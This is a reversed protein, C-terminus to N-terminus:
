IGGGCALGAFTATMQRIQTRFVATPGTISARRHPADALWEDGCGSQREDPPPANTWHHGTVNM